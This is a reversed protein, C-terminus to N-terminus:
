GTLRDPLHRGMERRVLRGQLDAPRARRARTSVPARDRPLLGQHGRGLRMWGMKPGKPAGKVLVAGNKSKM